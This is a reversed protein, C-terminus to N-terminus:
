VDQVLLEKLKRIEMEDAVSEGKLLASSHYYRAGTNKILNTLNEFRVGGGPMIEIRGNAHQILRKLEEAGQLADSRHGSTLITKFGCNIIQELAIFADLTRDFARHFTCPLPDALKVLQNNRLRDIKQNKDLIGFVFGQVGSTKFFLIADKMASFEQDSYRFDGGRPRIMVFVPIKVKSLVLNVDNPEPTLGGEDLGSCLEIRDAGSKDAIIASDANFCAIELLLELHEEGQM